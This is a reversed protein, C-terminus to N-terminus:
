CEYGIVPQSLQMQRGKSDGTDGTFQAMEYLDLETEHLSGTPRPGGPRADIYMSPGGANLHNQGSALAPVPTSVCPDLIAYKSHVLIVIITPYIGELIADARHRLASDM